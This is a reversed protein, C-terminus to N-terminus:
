GWGDDDGEIGDDDDDGEIDDDDDAAEHRIEQLYGGKDFDDSWHEAKLQQVAVAIESRRVLKEGLKRGSTDHMAWLEVRVRDDVSNRSVDAAAGFFNRKGVKEHDFDDFGGLVGLISGAEEIAAELEERSDYADTFNSEFNDSALVGFTPSGIDKGQEDIEQVRVRRVSLTNSM